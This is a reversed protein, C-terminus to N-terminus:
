EGGADVLAQAEARPMPLTHEPSVGETEAIWTRRFRVRLGKATVWYDEVLRVCNPLVERLKETVVEDAEERTM